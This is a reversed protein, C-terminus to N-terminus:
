VKKHSLAVRVFMDNHTRYNNEALAMSEYNGIIFKISHDYIQDRIELLSIDEEQSGNFRFMCEFTINNVKESVFVEPLKIHHQFPGNFRHFNGDGSTLTNGFKFIKLFDLEKPNYRSILNSGPIDHCYVHILESPGSYLKLKQIDFQIRFYFWLM